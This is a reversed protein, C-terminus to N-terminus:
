SASLAQAYKAIYSEVQRSKYQMIYGPHELPIIRKFWHHKSNLENLFKVNKGTGLCFVASRDIPLSLQIEMSEIIFPTVASQLTPSDYYNLNVQKGNNNKVFGLPSISSVLFSKYFLEVGGLADIMRYFFASSTEHTQDDTTGLDFYELLRKTDTFPIGTQGAGLRGPNIGLILRRPNLDSYFRDYFADSWQLVREDNRFPNLVEVGDPLPNSITLLRNFRKIEKTFSEMEFLDRQSEM